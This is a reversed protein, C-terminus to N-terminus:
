LGTEGKRKGRDRKSERERDGRQCLRKSLQRWGEAAIENKVVICSVKM